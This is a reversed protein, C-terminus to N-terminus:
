RDKFYYYTILFGFRFFLLVLSGLRDSGMPLETYLSSQVLMCHSGGETTAEGMFCFGLTGGKWCTNDLGQRLDRVRYLCFRTKRLSSRSGSLIFFGAERAVFCVKWDLEWNHCSILYFGKSGWNIDKRFVFLQYKCPLRRAFQASFLCGVWINWFFEVQRLFFLLEQLSMLSLFYRELGGEFATVKVLHCKRRSWM